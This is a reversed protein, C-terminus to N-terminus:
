KQEAAPDWTKVVSYKGDKVGVIAVPKVAVRSPRSFSIKGTVGKFGVTEALAKTLAAGETGGARRVASAIMQVTDYGLAAFANDPVTGYESKYLQIFEIVEPRTDGRFAHTTFYVGDASTAGGLTSVLDSDFSDGGIVPINVGAARLPKVAAAIDEPVAALFLAQVAPLADKIRQVSPAFDNRSDKFYDEIVIRAGMEEMRRKFLKSLVRTYDTSNNAWIAVNGARLDKFTFDAAAAAQDDDGFATMFVRLGLRE